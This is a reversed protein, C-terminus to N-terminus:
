AAPARPPTPGRSPWRNERNVSTKDPDVIAVDRVDSHETRFSDWQYHFDIVTRLYQYFEGFVKLRIRHGPHRRRLEARRKPVPKARSRLQELSCFFEERVVSTGSGFDIFRYLIQIRSKGRNPMSFSISSRRSANKSVHSLGHAARLPPNLACSLGPIGM